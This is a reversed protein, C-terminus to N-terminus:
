SGQAIPDVPPLVYSAGSTPPAPVGEDGSQPTAYVGHHQAGRARPLLLDYKAALAALREAAVKAPETYEYKMAKQYDYQADRVAGELEFLEGARLHAAPALDVRAYDLGTKRYQMAAEHREGMAELCQALRFSADNARHFDVYHDLFDRYSLIAQQYNKMAYYQEARDFLANAELNKWATDSRVINDSAPACAAAFLLLALM